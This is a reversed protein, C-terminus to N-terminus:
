LAGLELQTIAAHEAADEAAKLKDQLPKLEEEARRLAESHGQETEQLRMELDLVVKRQEEAVASGHCRLVMRSFVVAKAIIPSPFRAVRLM